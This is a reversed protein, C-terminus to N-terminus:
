GPFEAIGFQLQQPQVARRRVLPGIVALTVFLLAIEVHYVISYGTAPGALAVGLHGDLALQSMVDRIAGGGAIAVGAATAQVAGWAGLALGSEGNQVLAMAATLTGVAFLGGGFGILTAGIRFLLPSALPASFIVASFAFLGVLGGLAAIRYPDSGKGLRRASLGFGALTGAALLATLATTEGVTLHLIEAGYPELLIDQMTFGATGLGVALLVRASGGAERFHRWSDGFRPRERSASTRSPDRAEQKWLAIVNLVMETLAAGQIVQILRMESFEALLGGFTLASAMMGFMLMVYLFAVVRPRAQEPALDTALSLGATQTTHLGAGVLLFALAAGIRGAIVQGPADGSLVLLAFPMIALGGFQLLTGMWIYPVRRWGLVSRHHDSKFGILVRLPAFVLPLAVMTAVLWSPVGLEVIMVRNLTGNLLVVSIGVSVQFLSLRMLRSLPLEASAADAFPLYRASLRTWLQLFSPARASM